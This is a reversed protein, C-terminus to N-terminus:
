TPNKHTLLKVSNVLAENCGSVAAAKSRYFKGLLDEFVMESLPDVKGLLIRPLYVGLKAPFAGEVYLLAAQALVKTRM